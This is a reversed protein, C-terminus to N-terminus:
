FTLAAINGFTRVHHLRRLHLFGYVHWPCSFHSVNKVCLTPPCLSLPHMHHEQACLLPKCLTQKYEITHPEVTLYDLSTPSHLPLHRVCCQPPPTERLWLAEEWGIISTHLLPLSCPPYAYTALRSTLKAHMYQVAHCTTSVEM